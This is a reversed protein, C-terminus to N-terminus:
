FHFGIQVGVSRNRIYENLSQGNGTVISNEAVKILGYYYNFLLYPRMPMSLLKGGVKLNLGIDSSALSPGTYYDSYNQSIIRSLRLNASCWFALDNFSVKYSSGGELSLYSLDIQKISYVTGIQRGANFSNKNLGISFTFGWPKDLFFDKNFGLQYTPISKKFGDENFIIFTPHALNLGINFSLSKKSDQCYAYQSCLM